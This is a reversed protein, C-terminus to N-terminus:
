DPRQDLVGFGVGDPAIALAPELPSTGADRLLVM